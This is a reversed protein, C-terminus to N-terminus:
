RWEYRSIVFARTREFSYLDINSSNRTHEFELGIDAHPTLRYSWGLSTRWYEDHREAVYIPDLGNYDSAQWRLNLYPAHRAAITFSTKLELGYYTRGYYSFTSDRAREDGHYLFASIRPASNWSLTQRWGAAVVLTNTDRESANEYRYGNYLASMVLRRDPGLRWQWEGGPGTLSLYGAHDLLLRQHTAYLLLRSSQGDMGGGGAFAVQTTDFNHQHFNLNEYGDVSGFIFRREDLTREANLVFGLRAFSDEQARAGPTLSLITAPPPPLQELDTTANINNDYGMGLSLVGSWRTQSARKSPIIALQERAQTAMESTTDRALITNLMARALDLQSTRGYARALALRAANNEPEAMLVRELAFVAQSAHGTELAALGYPFDFSAQGASKATLTNALAYASEYQKDNVLQQLQELGSGWAPNCILYVAAALSLCLGQGAGRRFAWCSVAEGPLKQLTNKHRKM